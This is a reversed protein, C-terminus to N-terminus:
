LLNVTRQERASQLAALNVRLTQAAEALTALPTPKGEIGDLFANAQTIFVTDREAFRAEHWSWEKADRTFHGWRQHHNEYCLSGREGHICLTTENPAQFQNMAYNAMIEGHRATVCVTDEVTVGELMQHSADAHVRTVPGVIWEVANVLHTLADQILGGGTEHRNYYIERYAPRFTPFHQGATVTVQLARGIMGSKFADRLAMVGPFSHYVYAVASFSGLAGIERIFDDVGESSTSLPKEILLASGTRAIQLAIPLHTHAPTAIVAGQYRAASLADDVTPFMNVGYESGIRERLTPNPECAVVTARGTKQFCRLHREGISGCGVILISHAM